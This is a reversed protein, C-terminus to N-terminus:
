AAHITGNEDQVFYISLNCGPKATEKQFIPSLRSLTQICGEWHIEHAKYFLKAKEMLFFRDNKREVYGNHILKSMGYNLEDLTFISHNYTDGSSIIEKISAGRKSFGISLLLWCDSSEFRDLNM